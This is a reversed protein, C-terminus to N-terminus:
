APGDSSTRSRQLLRRAAAPYLALDQRTPVVLERVPIKSVRSLAILSLVGYVVYAIVSVIAAAPVGFLPILVVDLVVTVAVSAGAVASSLGPRGRGRLDGAVVTGTGLFWMSPLLIFLPLLAPHFRPGYLYIIVLPAFVANGLTAAVALIGHHRLSSTSTAAQREDGEYRSVLPL